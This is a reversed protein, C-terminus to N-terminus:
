VNEEVFAESFLFTKIFSQFRALDTLNRSSAPLKNWLTPASVRYTRDGASKKNGITRELTPAISSRTSRIPTHLPLRLYAPGTQNVSKHAHTLIKFRIRHEVPLWHLQKLIPTIHNRRRSNTLLRAAQNQLKQLRQIDGSPIGYFISNCFDLRSTIFAHVLPSLSNTPLYKKISAISRLHYFGTSVVKSIHNHFTMGSDFIVGLNKAKSSPSILSSGVKLSVDDFNYVNRTPSCLVLFETKEDNPKLKNKAM